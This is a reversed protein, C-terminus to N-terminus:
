AAKPVTSTPKAWGYRTAYLSAAGSVASAGAGIFASTRATRGAEAIMAGEKRAIEGRKRLDIAEVSYGWAERAANQRIQMADLEGLYAADQQVELGSGVDVEVGQGSFGARQSAIM